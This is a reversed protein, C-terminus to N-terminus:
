HIMQILLNELVPVTNTLDMIGKWAIVWATTNPFLYDPTTATFLSLIVVTCHGHPRLPDSVVSRSFQVSVACRVTPYCMLRARSALNETM